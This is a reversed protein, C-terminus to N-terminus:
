GPDGRASVVAGNAAWVAIERLAELALGVEASTNFWGFSFRVTGTPFTGLTRHASPACHLGTRAMIGFSQDLILGVESPMAGAVNFSVVGCQLAADKPGYLTIGSIEAAGALFQAVLKREHAQVAEIGIESLFRVGAGLGAIGAVNLTGSEYADPLFEPQTEQASDSGTGGRMLPALVVGERIYLGGTGTPGLLAKHGTFALLDVGMEQVDIPIAGATQSADVLYPIGQERALAALAVVPTLTGVVNSGHTTVLLRTGPRLARRVRNLDLMGDRNCSVVTLEVGLTELHRLPRMVSNHEVSTTVVHDGPRLLGYLAQNLAQTANQTFVIRSPDHAHFLEALAERAREVIRAAAVSMRHGSRGPNGGADGVYDSLAARVAAPKPWSTAANDFYIM